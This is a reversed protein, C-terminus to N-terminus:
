FRDMNALTITFYFHSRRKRPCPATVSNRTYLSLDLLLRVRAPALPRHSLPQVNSVLRTRCPPPQPPNDAVIASFNTPFENSSWREDDLQGAGRRRRAAGSSATSKHMMAPSKSSNVVAAVVARLVSANYM